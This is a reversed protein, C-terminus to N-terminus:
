QSRSNPGRFLFRNITVSALLDHGRVRVPTWSKRRSPRRRRWSSRVTPTACCTNPARTSCRRRGGHGDHALCLIILDFQGERALRVIEAGHDKKAELLQLQRGLNAAREQDQRVLSAGNAEVTVLPV